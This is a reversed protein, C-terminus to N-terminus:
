PTTLGWYRACRMTCPTDRDKYVGLDIFVDLAELLTTEAPM